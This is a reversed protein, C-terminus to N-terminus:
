NTSLPMLKDLLESVARRVFDSRNCFNKAATLEILEVIAPEFMVTVPVKEVEAM